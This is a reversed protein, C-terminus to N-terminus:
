GPPLLETGALIENALGVAEDKTAAGELRFEIDDDANVWILVPGADLTLELDLGEVPYSLTHPAGVWVGSFPRSVGSETPMEVTLFEVDDASALSKVAITSETTSRVSLRLQGGTVTNWVYTRGRRPDDFVADPQGLSEIPVVDPTPQIHRGLDLTSAGDADGASNEGAEPNEGLEPNEGVEPEDVEFVTAGIGFWDAVARGAPTVVLILGLAVLLAAGAMAVRGIGVDPDTVMAPSAAETVGGNPHSDVADTSIRDLVAATLDVDPLELHEVADVFVEQLDNM